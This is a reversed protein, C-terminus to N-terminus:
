ASLTDDTLLVKAGVVLTPADKFWFDFRAEWEGKRVLKVPVGVHQLAIALAIGGVPLTEEGNHTRPTVLVVLGTLSFEPIHTISKPITAWQVEILLSQLQLAFGLGDDNGLSTFSVEIIAPPFASIAEKFLQTQKNNLKRPMVRQRLELLQKEAEAQKRKAEAVEKKLEETIKNADAIKANAKAAEANAEAIRADADLKVAEQYANSASYLWIALVATILTGILAALITVAFIWNQNNALAGLDPSM